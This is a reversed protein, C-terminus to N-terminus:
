EYLGARSVAPDPIVELMANAEISGKALAEELSLEGGFAQRIVDFVHNLAEDRGILNPPGLDRLRGNEALISAANGMIPPITEFGERQAFDSRVPYSNRIPPLSANARSMWKVFEWSAAEEEESSRRIAYYRCGNMCSLDLGYSPLPAISYGEGLGDLDEPSVIRMAFTQYERPDDTSFVGDSLYEKVEALVELLKANEPDLKNNVFLEGERQFLMTLIVSGVNSMQSMYLGIQNVRGEGTTDRNLERAYRILEDWTAPPADFGAAKLMEGHYALMCWDTAWPIGWTKENFTVPSFLNKPFVNLELGGDKLFKEIPVILGKSALYPGEYGATSDIGVINRPLAPLTEIPRQYREPSVLGAADVKIGPHAEEFLAIEKRFWGEAGRTDATVLMGVEITVVGANETAATATPEAGVTMVGAAGLVILCLRNLM